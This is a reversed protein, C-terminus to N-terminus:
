SHHLHLKRHCSQRLKLQHFEGFKLNFQGCVRKLVHLLILQQPSRVSSGSCDTFAPEHQLNLTFTEWRQYKLGGQFILETEESDEAHIQSGHSNVGCLETSWSMVKDQAALYSYCYNCKQVRKVTLKFHFLAISPLDKLHLSFVCM